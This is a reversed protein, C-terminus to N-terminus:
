RAVGLQWGEGGGEEGAEDVGMEMRNREDVDGGVAVRM